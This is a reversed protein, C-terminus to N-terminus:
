YIYTHIYVDIGNLIYAHIYTYTLYIRHHTGATVISGMVAAAALQVASFRLRCHIKMIAHMCVYMYVYMKMSKSNLNWNMQRFNAERLKTPLLLYSFRVYMCIYMCVYM